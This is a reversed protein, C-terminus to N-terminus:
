EGEYVSVISDWDVANTISRTGYSGGYTDMPGMANEKILDAERPILTGAWLYSRGLERNQLCALPRNILEVRDRHARDWRQLQEDSPKRQGTGRKVAHRKAPKTRGRSAGM